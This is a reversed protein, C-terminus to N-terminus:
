RGGGTLAGGQRAIVENVFAQLTADRAAVAVSVAERLDPLGIPRLALALAPDAQLAGQVRTSEELAAVVQGRQVAQLAAEWSPLPVVVAQPFHRAALAAGTGGEVVGLTGAFSRVTAALTQGRALRAFGARHVLLAQHRTLYPDSLRVRRALGPSRALGGLGLDAEGRAVREVVEDLSAASRDLRLPLDLEAALREALRVDLGTPAEGRTLVFPARDAAPLAVVLEGRLTIRGIDAPLVRGDPLRVLGDDAPAPASASRAAPAAASATRVAPAPAARAWAAPGLAGAAGLAALVARRPLPSGLPRLSM